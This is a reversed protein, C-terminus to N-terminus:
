GKRAKYESVIVAAVLIAIILLGLEIDNKM